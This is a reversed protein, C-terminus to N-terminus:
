SAQRGAVIQAAAALQKADPDCLSVVDVPSVQILRLLDVKGYWGTGILGVRLPKEDAGAVHPVLAAALAATATTQLFTRRTTPMPRDGTAPPLLRRTTSLDLRCTPYEGVPASVDTLGTQHRRLPLRTGPRTQRVIPTQMSDRKQWRSHM